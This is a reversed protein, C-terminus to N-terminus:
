SAGGASAALAAARARLAPPARGDEALGTLIERATELDNERLALVGQLERASYRFPADEEALPALRAQMEDHPATDMVLLAARLGALERLIHPASVDGSVIQDYLVVAQDRGEGGGLTAAERLQALVKYIGDTRARLESLTVRAEGEKGARLLATAEEYLDSAANKRSSTYEQYGVGSATGLVVAVIVAVLYKGYAKWLKVYFESRLDEEVEQFIDSM